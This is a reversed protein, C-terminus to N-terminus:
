FKKNKLVLQKMQKGVNERWKTPQYSVDVRKKILDLLELHKRVKKASAYSGELSYDMYPMEEDKPRISRLRQLKNLSMTGKRQLFGPASIPEEEPRAQDDIKLYTKHVEQVSAAYQLRKQWRELQDKRRELSNPSASEHDQLGGRFRTHGQGKRKTEGITIQETPALKFM